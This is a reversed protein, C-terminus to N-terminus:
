IRDERWDLITMGFSLNPTAVNQANVNLGWYDPTIFDTRVTRYFRHFYKGDHSVTYERYVGDDKIGFWCPITFSQGPYALYNANFTSTDTWKNVYFSQDHGWVIHKGSSNEYVVIGGATWQKYMKNMLLCVKVHYPAPPLKRLALHDDVVNGVGPTLMYLGADTKTLTASSQNVWIPFTDLDPPTVEYFPGYRVGNILRTTVGQPLLSTALDPVSRFAACFAANDRGTGSHFTGDWSQAALDTPIRYSTYLKGSTAGTSEHLENITTFDADNDLVATEIIHQVGGIVIEGVEQLAETSGSSPNVGTDTRTTASTDYMLRQAGQVRIITMGWGASNLATTTGVITDGSALATDARGLLICARADIGSAQYGTDVYQTYGNKGTDTVRTTGPTSTSFGSNQVSGIVAILWDGVDVGGAPVTVTVTSGGFTGTSALHSVTVM